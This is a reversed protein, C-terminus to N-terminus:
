IFYINKDKKLIFYVRALQSIGTSLQLGCGLFVFGLL